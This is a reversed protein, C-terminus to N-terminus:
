APHDSSGVARYAIWASLTACLTTLLALTAIWTLTIWPASQQPLSPLISIIAAVLGILLAALILTRVEKTIVSRIVKKSIGITHLMAFEDRREALNRATVLGLGAAGLIVGLGGLVNFISIYTNEVSHFAAIREATPTITAGLDTLSKQLDARAETPPKETTALFLRYGPSSPFRELFAQEDVIFSGQFVSETLTGAIEVQFTNGLDDTYDILDGPKKKLVWLLTTEDIFAPLPARSAPTGLASHDTILSSNPPQAANKSPQPQDHAVADRPGTRLSAWSKEIGEATSKITFANQAELAATDTALLRPQAVSNLNFCSADDGTGVRIPLLQKITDDQFEFKGSALRTLPNSTEIWLGYGGTGGAPNQWDGAGHKQFATVSIVLFIASALTGIAVLSRTPRRALNRRALQAPTGLSCHATLLSSNPPQAANSSPQPQPALQLSARWISLGAILFAFGSLFFAASPGLQKSAALSGLGIIG